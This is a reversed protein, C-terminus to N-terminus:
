IASKNMSAISTIVEVVETLTTFVDEPSYLSISTCTQFSVTAFKVKIASPEEAGSIRSDTISIQPLLKSAPSRPGPVITPEAAKLKNTMVAIHTTTIGFPVPFLTFFKPTNVHVAAHLM